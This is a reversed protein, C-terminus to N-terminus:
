EKKSKKKATSKQQIKPTWSTYHNHALFALNLGSNKSTANAAAAGSLFLCLWVSRRSRHLPLSEMLPMSDANSCTCTVKQKACGGIAEFAFRHALLVLDARAGIAHRWTVAGHQARPRPIQVATDFIDVILSILHHRLHSAPRQGDLLPPAASAKHMARCQVHECPVTSNLNDDNDCAQGPTHTTNFWTPGTSPLNHAQPIYTRM